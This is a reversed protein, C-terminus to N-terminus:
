SAKGDAGSIADDADRADDFKIFGFGRSRGTEMDLIIQALGCLELSSNRFCAACSRAAGSLAHQDKKLAM